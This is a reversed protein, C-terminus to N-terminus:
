HLVRFDPFARQQSALIQAMEQLSLPFPAGKERLKAIHKRLREARRWIFAAAFGAVIALGMAILGGQAILGVVVLALVIAAWQGWGEPEEYFYDYYPFRRVDLGMAEIRKLMRRAERGQVHENIILELSVARGLSEAAAQLLITEAAMFSPVYTM